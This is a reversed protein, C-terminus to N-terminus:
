PPILPPPPHLDVRGWGSGSGESKLGRRRRYSDGGIRRLCAKAKRGGVFQDRTVCGRRYQEEGEGEREGKKRTDQPRGSERAACTQRHAPEAPSATATCSVAEGPWNAALSPFFLVTLFVCRIQRRFPKGNRKKQTYKRYQPRYPIDM